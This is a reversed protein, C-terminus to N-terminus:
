VFQIIHLINRSLIRVEKGWEGEAVVFSSDYFSKTGAVHEKTHGVKIVEEHKLISFHM